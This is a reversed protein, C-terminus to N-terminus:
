EEEDNSKAASTGASKGDAIKAKVANFNSELELYAGNLRDESPYIEEGGHPVDIGADLVGKLAAFVRSGKTPTHRGIDLVASEVGAKAARKGALLGTLYAAPTNKASGEWGMKKLEQAVATAKVADGTQTWDVFQVIVNGNTRRVVLRTEQSKLLALRTRYNTRGERRRRFPVRTRPSTAM